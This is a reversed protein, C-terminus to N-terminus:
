KDYSAEDKFSYVKKVKFMLQGLQEFEVTSEAPHPLKAIASIMTEARHVTAKISLRHAPAGRRAGQPTDMTSCPAVSRQLQGGSPLAGPPVWKPPLPAPSSRRSNKAFQRRSTNQLVVGHNKQWVADTFKLTIKKFELGHINRLFAGHTKQM